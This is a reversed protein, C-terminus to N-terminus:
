AFSAEKQAQKFSAGRITAGSMNRGGTSGLNIEVGLPALFRFVGCPTNRKKM